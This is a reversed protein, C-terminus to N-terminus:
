YDHESLVSQSKDGFKYKLNCTGDHHVVHLNDGCESVTTVDNKSEVFESVTIVDHTLEVFESVTNDDHKSEVFESVNLSM